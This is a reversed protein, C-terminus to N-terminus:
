HLHPPSDFVIVLAFIVKGAFLRRMVRADRLLPFHKSGPFFPLAAERITGALNGSNIVLKTCLCNAAPQITYDM